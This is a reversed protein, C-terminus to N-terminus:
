GRATSRREYCCQTWQLECMLLECKLICIGIYLIQLEQVEWLSKLVTM